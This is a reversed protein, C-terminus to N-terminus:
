EDLLSFNCAILTLTSVNKDSLCSRRNNVIWGSKSFVRESPVSIATVCLFRRALKAMRPYRSGHEKWWEFPDSVTTSGQFFPCAPERHYSDLETESTLEIPESPGTLCVGFLNAMLDRRKKLAPMAQPGVRPAGQSLNCAPGDLLEKAVVLAKELMEARVEQDEIFHFDKIRPDLYVSMLMVEQMSDYMTMWREELDERITSKVETTISNDSPLASLHHKILRHMLPMAFGITVHKETSLFKTADKFPKLVAMLSTLASADRANLDPPPKSRTGVVTSLTASVAGRCALLRKIMKLASNWRTKNDIALKKTSLDLRKQQDLLSESAKPSKRFFRCIAKAKKLASRVTDADLGRRVSLNLAHALCHLWPWELNEQVAKKMNARADTTACVVRDTKLDWRDMIELVMDAVNEATEADKVAVLDLVFGKISWHKTIGHLTLCIFRENAISTWSDFSVSFYDMTAIHSNIKIEVKERLAPLLTDTLKSRSPLRFKPQLYSILSRFEPDDVLRLALCNKTIMRTTLQDAHDNSFLLEDKKHALTMSIQHSSILHYRVHSTVGSPSHFKSDCLDCLIWEGEKKCHDWIKSSKKPGRQRKNKPVAPTDSQDPGDPDNVDHDEM